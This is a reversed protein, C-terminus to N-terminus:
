ELNAHRDLLPRPDSGQKQFIALVITEFFIFAAQEFSSGPPQISHFDGSYDNKSGGPLCVSYDLARGMPSDERGIVGYTLAGQQQALKILEHTLKTQGSGSVVVLIDGKRIKSTNTDGVFFAQYGLHMLRMCFCRLIYGSRGQAAFFIREGQELGQMFRQVSDKQLGLLVNRSEDLIAEILGQINMLVIDFGLGCDM